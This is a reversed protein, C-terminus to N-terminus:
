RYASDASSAFHGEEDSFVIEVRRNQQRGASTDNSAVPLAEGKGVAEVRSRDIGRSALAEQVAQARRKSLEQNYEDSGRSDTHGEIIVKTDPNKQMFNAVREMETDAGPKLTAKNTDFLVDGLTLVMGRDTQKAQLDTLQKQLDEAQAQASLAQQRAADAQAAQEKAAAAAKEAEATRAELLVKDRNAEGEAVAQKSRQEKIRAEGTQAQQSALYAYHLADDKRGEKLATDAGQLSSRADSLEKSAAQEVMPDRALTEVDTHAQTVEPLTKPTSACGAILISGVAAAVLNKTINV